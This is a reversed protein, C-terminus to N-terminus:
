KLLYKLKLRRFSIAHFVLFFFLYLLAANDKNMQETELDYM